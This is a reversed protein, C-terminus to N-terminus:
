FSKSKRQFFLSYILSVAIILLIIGILVRDNHRIGLGLGLKVITRPDVFAYFSGMIGYIIVAIVKKNM